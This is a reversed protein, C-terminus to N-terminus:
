VWRRQMMFRSCLIVRSTKRISTSLGAQKGEAGYFDVESSSKPLMKVTACGQMTVITVIITLAKVASKYIAM